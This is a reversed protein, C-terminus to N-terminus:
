FVLMIEENPYTEIGANIIFRYCFECIDDCFQDPYNTDNPGKFNYHRLSVDPLPYGQYTSNLDCSNDTYNCFPGCTDDPCM